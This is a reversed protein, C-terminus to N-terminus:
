IKPDVRVGTYHYTRYPVKRGRETITWGWNPPAFLEALKKWSEPLADHAFAGICVGNTRALGQLRFALNANPGVATLFNLSHIGIKAILVSGKDIGIRFEVPDVKNEVLLPNVIKEIVYKVTVACGVADTAKRTHDSTDAGFIAMVGDGTNKEVAGGYDRVLNMVEPILLNLLHLAKKADTRQSFDKIDFFFVCVDLERAYGIKLDEIRPMVRGDSVAALQDPIVGARERVRDRIEGLYAQTWEKGM